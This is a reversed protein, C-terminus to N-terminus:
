GRQKKTSSFADISNLVNCLITDPELRDKYEKAQEMLTLAQTCLACYEYRINHANGFEIAERLAKRVENFSKINSGACMERARSVASYFEKLKQEM